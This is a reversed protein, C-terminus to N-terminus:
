KYRKPDCELNISYKANEALYWKQNAQVIALRQKVVGQLRTIDKTVDAQALERLANQFAEANFDKTYFVMVSQYGNNVPHIARLQAGEAMFKNTTEEIFSNGVLEVVYGLNPHSLRSLDQMKTLILGESTNEMVSLDTQYKQLLEVAKSQERAYVKEIELATAKPSFPISEYHLQTM